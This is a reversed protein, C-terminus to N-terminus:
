KSRGAEETKGETESIVHGGTSSQGGGTTNVVRTMATYSLQGQCAQASPRNQDEATFTAYLLFVLRKERVEKLSMSSPEEAVDM